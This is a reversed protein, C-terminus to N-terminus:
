TVNSGRRCAVGVKPAVRCCEAPRGCDDDRDDLVFWTAVAQLELYHGSFVVATPLSMHENATRANRRWELRGLGRASGLAVSFGERLVGREGRYGGLPVLPPTVPLL